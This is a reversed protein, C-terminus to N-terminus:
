DWGWREGCQIFRRFCDVNEKDDVACWHAVFKDAVSKPDELDEETVDQKVFAYSPVITLFGMLTFMSFRDNIIVRGFSERNRLQSRIEDLVLDVKDRSREALSMRGM